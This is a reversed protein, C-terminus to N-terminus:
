IMYQYVPVCVALSVCVSVCWVVSGVYRREPPSVLLPLTILKLLSDALPTPPSLTPDDPEPVHSELLSKLATYYGACVASAPGTVPFCVYMAACM